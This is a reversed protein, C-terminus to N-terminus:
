RTRERRLQMQADALQRCELWMRTVSRRMVSATAKATSKEGARPSLGNLRLLAQDHTRCEEGI